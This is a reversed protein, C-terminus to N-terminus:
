AGWRRRRCLALGTLLGLGALLLTGPEPVTAAVDLRSNDIALTFPDNGAYAQAIWGYRNGGMPYAGALPIQMPNLDSYLLSGGDDRIYTNRDVTLGDPNAAWESEITYWGATTIEIGGGQYSAGDADAGIFWSGAIKEAGVGGAERWDSPDSSIGDNDNLNDNVANDLFWGDGDVGAAPDIYVDLSQLIYGPWQYRYEGFRTFAGAGAGTGLDVEAHGSGSASAVGLTGGGSGVQTITGGTDFWDSTDVEFGQFFITEVPVSWASQSSAVWILTAIVAM